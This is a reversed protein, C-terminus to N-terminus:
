GRLSCAAAAGALACSSRTVLRTSLRQPGEGLSTLAVTLTLTLTLPPTSLAHCSMM